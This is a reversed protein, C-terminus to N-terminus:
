GVWGWAGFLMGDSVVGISGSSSSIGNGVSKSIGAGSDSESKETGSKVSIGVGVNVSMVNSSLISTGVDFGTVSYRSVAPSCYSIISSMMVVFVCAMADCVSSSKQTHSSSCQNALPLCFSDGIEFNNFTAAARLRLGTKYKPASLIISRSVIHLVHSDIPM